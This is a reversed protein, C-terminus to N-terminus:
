NCDTSPPVNITNTQINENPHSVSRQGLIVYVYDPTLFGVNNFSGSPPNIANFVNIAYHVCSNDNLDYDFNALQLSTNIATQFQQANLNLTYRAESKRKLDESEEGIASPIPNMSGILLPNSTEPYFGYSLRQLNNGNSKELTIFAHGPKNTAGRHANLTIKYVTNSNDPVNKFCDLRKKLDIPVEPGVVTFAIDNGSSSGGGDGDEYGGWFDTPPGDSEENDMTCNLEYRDGCIDPADGENVDGVCVTGVKVWSCIFEGVARQQGSISGSTNRTLKQIRNNKQYLSYRVNGLFYDERLITGSFQRSNSTSDPFLTMMTYSYDDSRDDKSIVLWAKNPLSNSGDSMLMGDQLIMRLPVYLLSDKTISEAWNLKRVLSQRFNYNPSVGSRAFAISDKRFQEKAM